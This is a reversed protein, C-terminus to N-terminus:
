FVELDSIFVRPTFIYVYLLRRTINFIVRLKHSSTRTDDALLGCCAGVLGGVKWGVKSKPIVTMTSLEPFSTIESWVSESEWWRSGGGGRVCVGVGVLRYVGLM